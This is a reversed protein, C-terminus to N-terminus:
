CGDLARSVAIVLENIAVSGDGNADVPTCTDVTASGLAITVGAILENIAVSGDGDCDGPCDGGSGPTVTATPTPAGGGDGVQVALMTIAPADDGFTFDDNVSNGAAFLVAEGPTDPATWVFEWAAEGSADNERPVAHTLEFRQSFSDRQRRVGTDDGPNLDGASASVNFGAAVQEARNSVVVIRYTAMAGPEVQAPGEIRVDPPVAVGGDDHCENCFFGDQGSYGVIGNRHAGAVAPLLLLGACAIGRTLAARM